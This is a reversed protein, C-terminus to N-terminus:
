LYGGSTRNSAQVSKPRPWNRGAGGALADHRPFNRRYPDVYFVQRWRPFRYEILVDVTMGDVDSVDIHDFTPLSNTETTDLWSMRPMSPHNVPGDMTPEDLNGTLRIEEMNAQMITTNLDFPAMNIRSGSVSAPGHNLFAEGTGADKCYLGYNDILGPGLVTAQILEVQQPVDSVYPEIETYYDDTTRPFGVPLSYPVDHDNIYGYGLRYETGKFTWGHGADWKGLSPVAGGHADIEYQYIWGASTVPKGMTLIFADASIDGRPSPPSGIGGIHEWTVTETVMWGAVGSIWGSRRTPAPSLLEHVVPPNYDASIKCHIIEQHVRGDQWPGYTVM